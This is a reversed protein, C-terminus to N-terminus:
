VHLDNVNFYKNKSVECVKSLDTHKNLCWLVNLLVSISVTSKGAELARLTPVSCNCRSALGKLTWKLSKRSTQLRKGLEKVERSVPFPLIHTKKVKSMIFIYFIYNCIALSVSVINENHHLEGPFDGFKYINVM